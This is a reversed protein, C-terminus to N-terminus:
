KVGTSGLGGVRDSATVPPERIYEIPYTFARVMEAQAIRDGNKIIVDYESLNM